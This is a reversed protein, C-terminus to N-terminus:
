GIEPRSLRTFNLAREEFLPLKLQIKNDMFFKKWGAYVKFEDVYAQYDYRQSVSNHRTTVCYVQRNDVKIQRAFHGVLYSYRVDNRICTSEFTINNRIILEKKVMKCWPETFMYRFSLEGQRPDQEYLSFYDHLCDVRNSPELTDSYVSNANFFIIDHDDDAYNDLFDNFGENFFDDSDAFIIWKGKAFPLAINRANGAGRGDKNFIVQLGPRGQCPFHEFDIIQSSSNDDVVIIQLDERVPISKILRELLSPINKHPIIITFNTM